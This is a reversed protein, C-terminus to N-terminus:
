LVGQRSGPARLGCNSNVRYKVLDAISILRLGFRKKYEVIEGLRSVTGDDNM